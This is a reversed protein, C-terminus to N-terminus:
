LVDISYYMLMLYYIIISTFMQFSRHSGDSKSHGTIEYHMTFNESSQTKHLVWSSPCFEKSHPCRLSGQIKWKGLTSNIYLVHGYNRCKYKVGSVYIYLNDDKCEYEYCGSGWDIMTRIYQESQAIWRSAQEICKSNVGYSELAFNDYYDPSNERLQCVTERARNARNKLRFKQFFPCYDALSVAGGYSKADYIVSQNNRTLHNFYQYELPLNKSYKVLNCFAMADNTHTCRSHLPKQKIQYCFPSPRVRNKLQLRMWTRCSHQAFKCGLNKGWDLDEAMDYNVGYWGTDEMLALTIRSFVPNQTYTGTMAENEFIRKEWHTWRTGFYGQNEIEAGELSNCRFHKRVEEKVKPTVIMLVDHERMGQSTEWNKRTFKKVIKENWQFLNTDNNYQPLGYADRATLPRGKSDRYFAYLGVSFGLAHFIEHKMMALLSPYQLSDHSVGNPCINAFGAIPRDLIHEQQCYSAYAVTKSNACHQSPLSSVYLIFDVNEIGKKDQEHTKCSLGRDDCTKCSSLHEQPIEVPGCYTKVCEEKCFITDGKKQGKVDKLFYLRDRCKRQLRIPLKSPRVKLTKHFYDLAEPILKDLILERKTRAFQYLSSDITVHFRMNQTPPLYPTSLSSGSAVHHVMDDKSPIWHQAHTSRITRWLLIVFKCCSIGSLTAFECVPGCHFFLDNQSETKHQM